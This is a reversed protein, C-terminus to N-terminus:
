HQGGGHRSRCHSGGHPIRSGCLCLPIRPLFLGRIIDVFERQGAGPVVWWALLQKTWIFQEVPEGPKQATGGYDPLLRRRSAENNYFALLKPGFEHWQLGLLVLAEM